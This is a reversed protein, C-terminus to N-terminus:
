LFRIDTIQEATEFYPRGIFVGTVEIFLHLEEGCPATGGDMVALRESGGAFTIYLNVYCFSFRTICLLHTM